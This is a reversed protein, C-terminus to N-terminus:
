NVRLRDPEAHASRKVNSDIYAISSVESEAEEVYAQRSPHVMMKAVNPVQRDRANQLLHKLLCPWGTRCAFRCEVRSVPRSFVRGLYDRTPRSLYPNPYHM